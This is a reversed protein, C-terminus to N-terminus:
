VKGFNTIQYPTKNLQYNKFSFLPINNWDYGEKEYIESFDKSKKLKDLISESINPENKGFKTNIIEKLQKQLEIVEDVTLNLEIDNITISITEITKVKINM